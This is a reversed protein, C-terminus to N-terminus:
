VVVVAGGQRPDGKAITLKFQSDDVGCVEALADIAAKSSALMNDIDRRHRDPPLFRLEFTDRGKLDDRFQSLLMYCQTKYAKFARAKAAWHPRANPSLATPPFPLEIM